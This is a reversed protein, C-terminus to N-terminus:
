FLAKYRTLNACWFHGPIARPVPRQAAPAHRLQTMKASEATDAALGSQGWYEGHFRVDRIPLETGSLSEHVVPFCTRM